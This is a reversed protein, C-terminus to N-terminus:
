VRVAPQALAFRDDTVVLRGASNPGVLLVTPFARTRFADSMPGDPNERVVTAVPTLRSVFDGAQEEDGVVVAVPQPGRATRAYDIFKPLKEKCPQCTPSFFAVVTGGVLSRRDLPRGDVTVTHFEGVEEGVGLSAPGGGLNGLLETHERLRKVVGVTLLLDM